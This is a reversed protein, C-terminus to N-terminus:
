DFYNKFFRTILQAAEARTTGNQPRLTGDEMGVILGEGVAWAMAEQAFNSVKNADPFSSYSGQTLDMEWYQAFRYLMTVMQERTVPDDPGFKNKGYGQVIEVDPQIAWLIADTYWEGEKTDTFSDEGDVDPKWDINYLIQVMQARTLTADPKFIKQPYGQMFGNYIVYDVADHYWKNTDDLDTYDASPCVKDHPPKTLSITRDGTIHFTVFDEANEADEPLGSFKYEFGLDAYLTVVCKGETSDYGYTEM